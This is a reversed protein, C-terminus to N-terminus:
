GENSSADFPPTEKAGENTHSQPASLRSADRMYQMMEFYTPGKPSPERYPLEDRKPLDNRHRIEPDDPGDLESTYTERISDINREDERRIFESTDRIAAKRVAKERNKQLTNIHTSLRCLMDVIQSYKQPDAALQRASDPQLLSLSLQTAALQLGVEPLQTADNKRIYDTLHDQLHSLQLQREQEDCWEKYGGRTKWNSINRETVQIQLEDLAGIIRQYPVNNHLMRNVVDRQLKPLRAIKGNRVHPRFARPRVNSPLEAICSHPHDASIPSSQIRAIISVHQKERLDIQTNTNTNTNETKM